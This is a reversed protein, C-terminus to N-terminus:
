SFSAVSAGKALRAGFCGNGDKRGGVIFSLRGETIYSAIMAPISVFILESYVIIM